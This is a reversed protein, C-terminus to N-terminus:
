NEMKIGLDLGKGSEIITVFEGNIKTVVTIGKGRYINVLSQGKKLTGRGVYKVTGNDIIKGIDDLFEQGHSKYKVYRKGTVNELLKKHRIFHDKFNKGASIVTRGGCANHVLVGLETVFYTHYDAVEFNYVLVKEDQAEQWVEEVTAEKGTALRLSDGALLFQAEVFGKGEM